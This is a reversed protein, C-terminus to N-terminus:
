TSTPAPLRTAFETDPVVAMAVPDAVDVIRFDALKGINGAEGAGACRVVRHLLGRLVVDEVTRCAVSRIRLLICLPENAAGPAGDTDAMVGPDAM